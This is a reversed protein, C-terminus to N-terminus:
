EAAVTAERSVMAFAMRTLAEGLQRALDPDVGPQEALARLMADAWQAAADPTVAMSRHLRMICTGPRQEFWDRPGGLWAQLFLALSDRIPALDEGHLARLRAYAPDSDVLAYFRGALARVTDAGGIRDFPTAQAM